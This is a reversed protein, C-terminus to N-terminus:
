RGRNRHRKGYLFARGIFVHGGMLIHLGAFVLASVYVCVAVTHAVGYLNGNIVPSAHKHTILAICACLFLLFYSGEPLAVPSWHVDRKGFHVGWATALAVGVGFLSAALTLFHLCASPTM